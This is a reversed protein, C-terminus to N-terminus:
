LDEAGLANSIAASLVEGLNGKAGVFVNQVVGDPDIVVTQPIANAEYRGAAVGDRDMAVEPEIGMRKLAEQIQDSTEQLNVAVLQVSDPDFGQVTNEIVPMAQICPGCWTAWFDLVLVKGRYKAITFEEGDLLKLKVEPAEKGVLASQMSDGGDSEPLIIDNANKLQWKAYQGNAGIDAPVLGILLEDVSELDVAAKGLVANNGKIMSGQVVSPQVAIHYRGGSKGIVRLPHHDAVSSTEPENEDDEVQPTDLWIVQALVKRDLTLTEFGAQVVVNAEDISLLRCRLLDGNTAILLHTPPDRKNRRPVTLFRELAVGDIKVKAEYGSLVIARIEDSHVDKKESEKSDFLFHKEAYKNPEIEVSEGTKLYLLSPSDPVSSATVTPPTPGGSMRLLGSLLNIPNAARPRQAVPRSAQSETPKPVAARLFKMKGEFSDALAVQAADNPKFWLPHGANDAPTEIFVGSLKGTEFELNGARGEEPTETKAKANICSLRLLQAIKIEVPEAVFDSKLILSQDTTQVVRGSWLSGMTTFVNFRRATNQDDDDTDANPTAAIQKPAIEIVNSLSVSVEEEGTKVTVSQGDVSVIQGEVIEKDAKYIRDQDTNDTSDVAFYPRVFLSHIRLKGSYNTFRVSRRDALKTEGVSPMDFVKGTTLNILKADGKSQDLHILFHLRGNFSDIDGLKILSLSEELELVLVLQENFVSLFFTGQLADIPTKETTGLEIVFDTDPAFEVELEVSSRTHLIDDRRIATNSKQSTLVGTSDDWRPENDEPKPEPQKQNPAQGAARIAVAANRLQVKQIQAEQALEMAKKVEIWRDLHDPGRYISNEKGNTLPYIRSVQDRALTLLGCDATEIEISEDSIASLTGVCRERSHLEIAVTQEPYNEIQKTPVALSRVSNIDFVIPSVFRSNKWVLQGTESPLLQGEIWQDSILALKGAIHQPNTTQPQTAETAVDAPQRNRSFPNSADGEQARAHMAMSTVFLALALPAVMIQAVTPNWSRRRNPSVTATKM